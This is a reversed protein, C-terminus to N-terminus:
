PLEGNYIKQIRKGQEAAPDRPAEFSRPMNGSPTTLDPENIAPILYSKDGFLIMAEEPPGLIQKSKDLVYYTVFMLPVENYYVMKCELITVSDAKEFGRYKKVYSLAIELANSVSLQNQRPVAKLFADNAMFTYQRKTTASEVKCVLKDAKIFPPQTEPFSAGSSNFTAENSGVPLLYYGADAKDPKKLAIYVSDHSKLAVRAFVAAAYIDENSELRIVIPDFRGFKSSTDELFQEAEPISKLMGNMKVSTPNQYPIDVIIPTVPQGNAQVIATTYLVFLFARLPNM